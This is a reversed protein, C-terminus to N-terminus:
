AVLRQARMLVIVGVGYLAWTLYPHLGGFIAILLIAVGVAGVKLAQRAQRNQQNRSDWQLMPFSCLWCREAHLQNPKGCEPCDRSFDPDIHPAHHLNVIDGGAVQGVSAGSRISVVNGGAVQEANGGVEQNLESKM